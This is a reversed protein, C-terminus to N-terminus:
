KVQILSRLYTNLRVIPYINKNLYSVSLIRLYSLFFDKHTGKNVFFSVTEGLTKTYGQLYTVPAPDTDSQRLSGLVRTSVSMYYKTSGEFNKLVVPGIDTKTLKTQIVVVRSGYDYFSKTSPPPPTSPPRHGSLNYMPEFGIVIRGSLNYM